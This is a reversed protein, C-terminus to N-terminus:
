IIVCACVTELSGLEMSGEEEEEEEEAVAAAGGAV